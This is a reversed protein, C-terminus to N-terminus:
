STSQVRTLGTSPDYVKFERLPPQYVHLTVNKDDLATVQHWGISNDMYNLAHDRYIQRSIRQYTSNDFVTEEFSGQIIQMWCRSDGHEHIPTQSNKPWDFLVVQYEDNEFLIQRQYSM